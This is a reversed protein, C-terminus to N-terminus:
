VIEVRTGNRSYLLEMDHPVPPQTWRYIWKADEPRLNVCGHSRPRGFDNHWYTGHFAIGNEIFYSVWPVGPLDYAGAARNGAAMHRSPRKYYTEFSGRPTVYRINEEHNGTSVRATYVVQGQEYALLIQTDTRVEIRKASLPVEPSIPALEENPILRLHHAAAFYNAEHRDDRIRYWPINKADYFLGTVWYASGYYLRYAPASEQKPALRSVTLPIGVEALRGWSPISSALPPLYIGTRVPQVASSHIFGLEGIQYWVRNYAPQSDGVTAATLPLVTDRTYIAVERGQFSPTGYVKVSDELVRGQQIPASQQFLRGKPFAGTAAALGGLKLFERRSLNSSRKTM